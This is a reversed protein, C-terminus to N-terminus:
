LYRFKEKVQQFPKDYFYHVGNATKPLCSLNLLSGLLTDAYAKGDISKISSHIIILKALPEIAAFTQLISFWYQKFLLLDSTDIEKHIINLIPSFATNIIETESGKNELCLHKIIGNIFSSL